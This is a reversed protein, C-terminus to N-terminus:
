LESKEGAEVWEKDKFLSKVMSLPIHEIFVTEQPNGESNVFVLKPTVIDSGAFEVVKVRKTTEKDTDKESSLWDQVDSGLVHGENVQIEAHSYLDKCSALAM